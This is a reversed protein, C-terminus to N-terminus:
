PNRLDSRCKDCVNGGPNGEEDVDFPAGCHQCIREESIIEDRKAMRVGLVKASLETLKDEVIGLEKFTLPSLDVFDKELNGLSALISHYKDMGEEENILDLQMTHECYDKWSDIRM